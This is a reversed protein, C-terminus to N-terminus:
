EYEKGRYTAISELLRVSPKPIRSSKARRQRGVSPPTARAPKPSVSRRRVTEHKIAATPSSSSSSENLKREMEEITSGNLISKPINHERLLSVFYSWGVPSINRRRDRVAHQILDEMRSREIIKNEKNDYIEGRENFRVFPSINELLAQARNRYPKPTSISIYQRMQEKLQKMEDLTSSQLYLRRYPDQVQAEQNYQNELSYFQQTLPQRVNQVASLQMYEEQPIAVMRQFQSM